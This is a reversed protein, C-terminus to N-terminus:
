LAPGRDQQIFNHIQDLMDTHTVSDSFSHGVSRLEAFRWANTKGLSCCFHFWNHARELRTRGQQLDIKRGSRLSSDVLTDDSGVMVLTPISLLQQKNAPRPLTHPWNSLGRPYREEPDPFTYWGAAALIMSRIRHPYCLAYRHSFQAGGSYGFLDLKMRTIDPQLQLLLRNLALDARDLGPHQDLRQYGPFKGETFEPVLLKIGQAEAIPIFAELQEQANRSIGHVCILLREMDRLTDPTHLWAGLEGNEIYEPM